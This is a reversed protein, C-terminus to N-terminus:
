NDPANWIMQDCRRKFLVVGIQSIFFDRHVCDFSWSLDCFVKMSYERSDLCELVQLYFVM